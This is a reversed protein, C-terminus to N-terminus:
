RQRLMQKMQEIRAIWYDRKKGRTVAREIATALSSYYLLEDRLKAARAELHLVKAQLRVNENEVKKIHDV